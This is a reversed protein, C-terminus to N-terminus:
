KKQGPWYTGAVVQSYRKKWYGKAGEEWIVFPKNGGYRSEVHAVFGIVEIKIDCDHKVHKTFDNKIWHSIFMLSKGKKANCLSGVLDNYEAKSMNGHQLSDLVGFSASKRKMMRKKFAPIPAKFFRMKGDQEKGIGYQELKKKVTESDGGSEEFNNYDINGFQTLENCLEMILSSKGNYSPGTVFWKAIREPRGFSELFKGKLDYLVRKKNIIQSPSYIKIRPEKEVKIQSLYAEAYKKEEPDIILEM